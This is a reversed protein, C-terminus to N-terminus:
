EHTHEEKGADGPVPPKPTEAQSADPLDEVIPPTIPLHNADGFDYGPDHPFYSKRRASM